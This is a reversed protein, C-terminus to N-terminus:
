FSGSYGRQNSMRFLYRIDGESLYHTDMFREYSARKKPLKKILDCSAFFYKPSDREIRGWDITNAATRPATAYFGKYGYLAKDIQEVRELKKYATRQIPNLLKYSTKLACRAATRNIQLQSM